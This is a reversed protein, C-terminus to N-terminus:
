WKAGGKGGGRGDIVSRGGRGKGVQDERGKMGRMKGGPEKVIERGEAEEM